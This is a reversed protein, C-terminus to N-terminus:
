SREMGHPMQLINSEKTQVQNETQNVLLKIFLRCRLDVTLM